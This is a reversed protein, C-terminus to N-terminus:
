GEYRDFGDEIVVHQNAFDIMRNLITHKNLDTAEAIGEIIEMSEDSVRVTRSSSDKIKRKSRFILKDM